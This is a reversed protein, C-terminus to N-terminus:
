LGEVVALAGAYTLVSVVKAGPQRMLQFPGTVGAVPRDAFANALQTAEIGPEGFLAAGRARCNLYLGFSATKCPIEALRAALDARATAADLEVLALQQGSWMAEPVSFARREPDFGVVNRVLLEGTAQAIGVLLPPTSESDVRLGRHHATEEYVDLAPRGGLGLVWNGRARTVPMPETVPRGAQTVAVRARAGRHVWGVLADSEIERGSWLLPRRRPPSTAGAGIVTAGDLGKPLGAALAGVDVTQSDALVVVLDDEGPEGVRAAIEEGARAEAGAAEPVFFPVLEAGSIALVMVAPNGSVEIGSAVIGEISGGVVPAGVAERAAAVATPLGEGHATSGLVIALGPSDSGLRAVAREAADRGAAEPDLLTSVGLGANMVRLTAPDGAPLAFRSEPLELSALDKHALIGGADGAETASCGGANM